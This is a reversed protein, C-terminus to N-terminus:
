NNELATWTNAATCLCLSNDATTSCNTDVTQDTDLYIDGVTCTAGPAAGNPIAVSTAFVIGDHFTTAAFALLSAGSVLGVVLALVTLLSTKLTKM